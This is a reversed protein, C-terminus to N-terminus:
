LEDCQTDSALSSFAEFELDTLQPWRASLRSLTLESSSEVSPSTKALPKKPPAKSTPRAPAKPAAKKSSAKAKGAPAKAKAPKAKPKPTKAAKSTKKPKAM